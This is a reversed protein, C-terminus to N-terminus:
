VITYQGYNAVGCHNDNNRLLKFNGNEGWDSGWSNRILFYDLGNQRGYGVAVLAHNEEYGKMCEVDYFLGGKYSYLNDSAYMAMAIPGKTKIAYVLADEDGSKLYRIGTLNAVFKSSIQKCTQQTGM